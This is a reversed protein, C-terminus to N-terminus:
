ISGYAYSYNFNLIQCKTYFKCIYYLTCLIILIICDGTECTFTNICEGYDWLYGLIWETMCCGWEGNLPMNEVCILKVQKSYKTFFIINSTNQINKQM